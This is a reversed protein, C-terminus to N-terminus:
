NHQLAVMKDQGTTRTIRTTDGRSGFNKKEGQQPIEPLRTLWLPFRSNHGNVKLMKHTISIEVDSNFDKHLYQINM